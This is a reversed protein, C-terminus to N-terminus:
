TQGTTTRPSTARETQRSTDSSAEPSGATRAEDIASDIMQLVVPDVSQDFKRAFVSGSREIESLDDTRLVMWDPRSGALRQPAVYTLRENKLRLELHNYLVTHLFAQDPIWTEKFWAVTEADTDLIASAARANFAMWQPGSYITWASSLKQRRPVGLLWEDRRPAYEIKFLPQSFRSIRRSVEFLARVISSAPTPLPRWRYMYRIYNLDDATPRRGLVPRKTLPRASVIGDFQDSCIAREWPALAVIPRDDGSLMVMWDADLSECAHRVLQLTAEVVSWDGWRV